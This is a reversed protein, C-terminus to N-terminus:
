GNIERYRAAVKCADNFDEALYVFVVGTPYDAVAAGGLLDDRPPQLSTVVVGRERCLGYIKKTDMRFSEGFDVGLLDPIELMAEILHDGNGCFHISGGGVERLLRADHPRVSDSYMRPSLMIASDDRILLTGPIMYGHQTTAAPFMRDTAWSRYLRAVELMVDVIRSMLASLLQSDEYFALFVDTGWLQHATDLPGQLDPMSVQVARDCPPYAKLRDRYFKLTALSPRLVGGSALDVENRGSAIRELEARTGVHKVWPYNDEHLSWAGGLLAAMQITGHDNRVALPSDDKLLLGPVVRGLIMNQLMAAPNEFAVRYPYRTFESWPPPLDFFPGDKPQVVLPPRDLEEYALARRYREDVRRCHDMDLHEAVCRLLRDLQKEDVRM